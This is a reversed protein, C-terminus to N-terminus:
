PYLRENTRTRTGARAGTGMRTRTRSRANTWTYEVPGYGDQKEDPEVAGVRSPRVGDSKGRGEYRDRGSTRRREWAYEAVPGGEEGDGVYRGSGGRGKLLRRTHEQLVQTQSRTLDRWVLMYNPDRSDGEWPMSYFDLTRPDVDQRHMRVYPPAPPDANSYIAAAVAAAASPQQEALDLTRRDAYPKPQSFEHDTTIDGRRLTIRPEPAYRLTVRDETLVRNNSAFADFGYPPPPALFEAEDAMSKYGATLSSESAIRPARKRQAVSIGRANTRPDQKGTLAKYLASLSNRFEDGNYALLVVSGLTVTTLPIAIEWFITQKKETGRIDSTNMGLYSTVFSLPLFIVTIVTFVFIAKGHDEENIEASQKTTESLPGCNLIQEGFDDGADHLNELCSHLLPSEFLYSAKRSLSADQYSTDDLVRSYSEVLKIQWSNVLLLTILEEQLLNISRLLRKGPRHNVQFSLTSLYERYMEAVTMSGELPKVMLRRIFWSCIYEPGFSLRQSIDYVAGSEMQTMKCLDQRAYRLSTKVGESFRKLVDLGLYSTTFKDEFRVTRSKTMVNKETCNISREIALYFVVLRHLAKMLESPFKYKESMQGHENMVGGALARTEQLLVRAENSATTLISIHAVNALEMDRQTSSVVWDGLASEKGINRRSQNDTAPQLHLRLHELATVPDPYPKDHRCARCKRLSEELDSDRVPPPLYRKYLKFHRPNRICWSVDIDDESDGGYTQQLGEGTNALGGWVKRLMANKDVDGVFLKLTGELTNVLEAYEKSITTIQAYLILQHMTLNPTGKGFYAADQSLSDCVTKLEGFAKEPLSQYYKPSTFASEVAHGTTTDFTLRESLMAKEVHELCRTSRKPEHPTLGSQKTLRDPTSDDTGHPWDFFPPISHLLHSEHETKENLRAATKSDVVSLKIFILNKRKVISPWNAPTVGIDGDPSDWVLHLRDASLLGSHTSSRLEELRQELEFYTGCEELSYLLVRHQWDVLRISTISKNESGEKRLQKIDEQVLKMSNVLEHSLPQYGCTVIAHSGVNMMWLTPVHIVGKSSGNGLKKIAQEADREFVSEYPYKSQMLTRPPYLRDTTTKLPPQIDFYPICSFIVSQLESQVGTQQKEEDARLVTGPEIFMGDLFVKAKEKEVKELTKRTLLRLRINDSTDHINLCTNKFQAFDLQKAHLHYWRIDTAASTFSSEPGPLTHIQLTTRSEATVSIAKLIKLTDPKMDGVSARQEPDENGHPLKTNNYTSPSKTDVLFSLKEDKFAPFDVAARSAIPPPTKVDDKGNDSVTDSDDYESDDISSGEENVDENSSYGWAPSSPRSAEVSKPPPDYDSGRERTGPYYAQQQTDADLVDLIHDEGTATSSFRGQSTQRAIAPEPRERPGPPPRRVRRAEQESPPFGEAFALRSRSTHPTNRSRPSDGDVWLSLRVQMNPEVTLSWVSPLVVEEDLGMIDFRDNEFESRVREDAERAYAEDLLLRFAKWTKCHEFPFLFRKGNHNIFTIKEQSSRTTESSVIEPDAGPPDPSMM